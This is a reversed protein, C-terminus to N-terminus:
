KGIILKESIPENYIGSLIVYYMGNPYNSVDTELTNYGKKIEVAQNFVRRSAADIITIEASTAPTDNVFEVSVNGGLTVNPSIRIANKDMTHDKGKICPVEKAGEINGQFADGGAGFITIQNGVNVNHSNPYMFPDNSNDMLALTTNCTKAQLLFLPLPRNKIYELANTGLNELGFYLYDFTPNEKPANTRGNIRWKANDNLNIIKDFEFDGTPALVTVQATSTLRKAGEYTESPVAYVVFNNQDGVREIKFKVQAQSSYSASLLAALSIIKTLNKM